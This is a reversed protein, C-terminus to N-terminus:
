TAEEILRRYHYGGAPEMGLERYLANAASNARTVALTLWTAGEGRAWNACGQMLRRGVGCRRNEPAVEIAHVMSINGHVAVFAAGSPTDGSRGLLATKPDTVREMVAVRAPGIGGAQWLERQIALPPWSPMAATMPLDTSLSKADALYLVVPDVIEYGRGSLAADLADEGERIMFLPSQGWTRMQEEM